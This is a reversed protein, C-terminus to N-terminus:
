EIRGLMAPPNAIENMVDRFIQFDKFFSFVSLLIGIVVFVAVILELIECIKQIYKELKVM